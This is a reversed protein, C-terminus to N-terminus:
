ETYQVGPSFEKLQVNPNTYNETNRYMHDIEM